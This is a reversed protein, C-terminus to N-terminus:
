DNPVEVWDGDPREVWGRELLRRAVAKRLMRGFVAMKLAYSLRRRM